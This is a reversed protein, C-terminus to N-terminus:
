RVECDEGGSCPRIEHNEIVKGAADYAVVRAVEGPVNAYFISDGEVLTGSQIEGPVPSGNVPVFEVKAVDTGDIGAIALTSPRGTSYDDTLFVEMKADPKLFKDTGFGWHRHWDQGVRGIVSPHCNPGPQVLWSSEDSSQFRTCGIAGVGQDVLIGMATSGVPYGNEDGMEQEAAAVGDHLWKPFVQEDYLTVGGYLHGPLDVPKPQPGSVRLKQDFGGQPVDPNPLVVQWDSVQVAGPIEALARRALPSLERPQSAEEAAQNDGGGRNGDFLQAGGFLLGVVAAAGLASGGAGLARHIRRRRGGRSRINRLDPGGLREVDPPTALREELDEITYKDM